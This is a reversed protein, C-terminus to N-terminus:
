RDQPQAAILKLLAACIDICWPADPRRSVILGHVSDKVKDYSYSVLDSIDDRNASINDCCIYDYRVHAAYCLEQLTRSISCSYGCPTFRVILNNQYNYFFKDYGSLFDIDIPHFVDEYIEELTPLRKENIM